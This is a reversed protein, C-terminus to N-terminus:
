VDPEEPRGLPTTIPSLCSEAESAPSAPATFGTAASRCRDTKGSAWSRSCIQPTKRGIREPASTTNQGSARIARTPPGLSGSASAISRSRGEVLRRTGAKSAFHTSQSSAWL